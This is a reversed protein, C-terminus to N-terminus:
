KRRIYNPCTKGYLDFKYLAFITTCDQAVEVNSTFAMLKARSDRHLLVLMSGLM